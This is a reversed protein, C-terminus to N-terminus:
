SRRGLIQPAHTKITNNCWKVQRLTRPHCTDVVDLLERDRSAQAVQGLMTWNVSNESALLYLARLDRLLLLGPEPRHGLAGAAKQRVAAVVGSHDDAGPDAQSPAADGTLRALADLNQECWRALDTSLHHVEAEKVHREGVVLLESRLDNEGRQLEQLLEDVARSM